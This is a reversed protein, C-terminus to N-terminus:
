SAKGVRRSTNQVHFIDLCVYVGGKIHGLYINYEQHKHYDLIADIHNIIEEGRAAFEEKLDHKLDNVSDFVRKIEAEARKLNLELPRDLQRELEQAPTLPQLPLPLPQQGAPRSASSDDSFIANIAPVAADIVPGVM